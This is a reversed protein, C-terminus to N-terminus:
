SIKGGCRPNRKFSRAWRGIHIKRPSARSKKGVINKNREQTDVLSEDMAREDAATLRGGAGFAKIGLAEGDMTEDLAEDAM